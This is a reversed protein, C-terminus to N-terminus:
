VFSLWKQLHKNRPLTTESTDSILFWYEPVRNHNFPYIGTSEVASVGVGVSAVKNWALGILRAMHYRIIKCASAENKFYSKLTWLASISLNYTTLVTVKLLIIIVNNEVDTQLLFHSSCHDGYGASPLIVKGSVVHKLFHELLKISVDTSILVRHNWTLTCRQGQPYAM